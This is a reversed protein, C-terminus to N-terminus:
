SSSVLQGGTGELEDGTRGVETAAEVNEGGEGEDPNDVAPEASSARTPEPPPSAGADDREEGGAKGDEAVEDPRDAM